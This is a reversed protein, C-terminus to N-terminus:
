IIREEHEMENKHTITLFIIMVIMICTFILSTTGTGVGFGGKIVPHSILDGGSAGFPRTLIYSIWFLVINNIKLLYLMTPVVVMIIGFIITADMYGLHFRNSLLDGAATGLAFTLFIVVWYFVERITTNIEHPDLAGEIKYWILFMIMLAVFFGLSMFTLPIGSNRLADSFMTGFIAMLVIVGWYMWPVYRKFCMQTFLSIGLIVGTVLLATIGFKHTFFDATTEGITTSIIKIVWFFITIESVKNLMARTNNQKQM